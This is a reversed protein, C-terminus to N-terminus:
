VRMIQVHDDFHTRGAPTTAFSDRLRNSLAVLMPNATTRDPVIGTSSAEDEGTDSSSIVEPVVAEADDCINDQGPEEDEADTDDTATHNWRALRKVEKTAQSRWVDVAQAFGAEPPVWHGQGVHNILSARMLKGTAQEALGLAQVAKTIGPKSYTKLFEEFALSPMHTDANFLVGLLQASIGSGSHM